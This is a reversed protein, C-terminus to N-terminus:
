GGLCRPSAPCLQRLGNATDSRAPNLQLAKQWAAQAKPHQGARYYAYGLATLIIVKELLFGAM